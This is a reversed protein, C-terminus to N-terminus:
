ERVNRHSSRWLSFWENPSSRVPAQTTLWPIKPEDSPLHTWAVVVLLVACLISYSLDSTTSIPLCGRSRGWLPVDESVTVSPLARELVLSHRDLCCNSSTILRAVSTSPMVTSRDELGLRSRCQSQIFRKLTEAVMRFRALDPPILSATM